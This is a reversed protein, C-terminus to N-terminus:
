RQAGLRVSIMSAMGMTHSLNKEISSESLAYATSSGPPTIKALVCEKGYCAFTLSPNAPKGGERSSLQVFTTHRESNRLSFVPSGSTLQSVYYQGAPMTHHSVVFAFPVDAVEPNSQAALHAVFPGTIGVATLLTILIRKM